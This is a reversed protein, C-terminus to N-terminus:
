NTIAPILGILNPSDKKKICNAISWPNYITTSGFQYGNYWAKIAASKATLNSEELITNVEAETFGFYESYRTHLISYVKLNNIGSFLSEKAIRLIGTIVAKHLYPNNKLASGFLGRMFAIMDEYYGQVYAAHIPTDYEDILLWPKVDYHLYLYHMLDALASRLEILNAKKQVINQFNQKHQEALKPSTLLEHHNLYMDSFLKAFSTQADHYNVEKIDKFTVAIVPYQGQHQLYLQGYEAIKFQDFLGQTPRGYVRAAFFYNLMSLQLTKGFRRPRTIVIAQADMDDIVDKIFLTKDIFSLKHELISGFNDYGIPLRM